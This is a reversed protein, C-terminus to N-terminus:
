ACLIMKFTAVFSLPFAVKVRECDVYNCTYYVFYGIINTEHFILISFGILLLLPMCIFLLRYDSQM